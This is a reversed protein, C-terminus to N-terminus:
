RRGSLLGAGHQSRGPHMVTVARRLLYGGRDLAGTLDGSSSRASDCRAAPRWRASPPWPSALAARADRGGPEPHRRQPRLHRRGGGGGSRDAARGPGHHGEARRTLRRALTEGRFPSIWGAGILGVAAPETRCRHRDNSLHQDERRLLHSEFGPVAEKATRPRLPSHRTVQSEREGVTVAQARRPGATASATRVWCPGPSSPATWGLTAEQAQDGSPPCNPRCGPLRGQPPKPLHPAM